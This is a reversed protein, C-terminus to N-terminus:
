KVIELEATVTIRQGANLADYVPNGLPTYFTDIHCVATPYDAVRVLVQEYSVRGPTVTSTGTLIPQLDLKLKM